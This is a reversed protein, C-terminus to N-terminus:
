TRGSIVTDSEAGWKKELEEAIREYRDLLGAGLEAEAREFSAGLAALMQSDLVGEAIRFLVNDEKHIHLTLLEIYRRGAEAFRRAADEDGTNYAAAARALEEVLRRGTEHEDLMVGIPGGAHPVGRRELAPFLHTEEKEHHFHDAFTRIFDILQVLAEPPVEDGVEFRLCIGEFARLAREIIRHDRKLIEIPSAM